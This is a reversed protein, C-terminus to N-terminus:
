IIVGDFTLYLRMWSLIVEFIRVNPFIEQNNDFQVSM